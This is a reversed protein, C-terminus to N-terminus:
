KRTWQLIVREIEIHIEHDDDGTFKLIPSGGDRNGANALPNVGADVAGGAGTLSDHIMKLILDEFSGAEISLTRLTQARIGGKPFLHFDDSHGNVSARVYVHVISDSALRNLTSLSEDAAEAGYFSRAGVLKKGRPSLNNAPAARPAKRKGSAVERAIKRHYEQAHNRDKKGVAENLSLGKLRGREVRDRYEQKTDRAKKM